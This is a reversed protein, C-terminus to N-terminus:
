STPIKLASLYSLINYERNGKANFTNMAKVANCLGM